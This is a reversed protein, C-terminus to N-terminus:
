DCSLPYVKVVLEMRRPLAIAIKLYRVTKRRSPRGEQGRSDLNHGHVAPVDTHAGRYERM